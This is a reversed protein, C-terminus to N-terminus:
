RFKPHADSDGPLMLADFAPSGKDGARSLCLLDEVAVATRKSPPGAHRGPGGHAVDHARLVMDEQVAARKKSM